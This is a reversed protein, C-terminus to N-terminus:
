PHTEALTASHARRESGIPEGEPTLRGRESSPPPNRGNHEVLHHRGGNLGPTGAQANREVARSCVEQLIGACHKCLRSRHLRFNPGIREMHEHRGGTGPRSSPILQKGSGGLTTSARLHRRTENHREGQQSCQRREGTFGNAAPRDHHTVPGGQLFPIFMREDDGGTLQFINAAGMGFGRQALSGHSILYLQPDTHLMSVHM